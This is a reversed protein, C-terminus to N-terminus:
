TDAELTALVSIASLMASFKLSVQTGPFIYIGLKYPFLRLKKRLIIRPKFMNRSSYTSNTINFCITGINVM